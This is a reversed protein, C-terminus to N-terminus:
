ACDDTDELIFAEVDGSGPPPGAGLLEVVRGSTSGSCITKRSPPRHRGQALAPLHQLNSMREYGM